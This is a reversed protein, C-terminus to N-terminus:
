MKLPDNIELQVGRSAPLMETAPVNNRLRRAPPAVLATNSGCSETIAARIDAFTIENRSDRGALFRARKVATEIASLYKESAQSYAALAEIAKDSGNPLHHRAVARLDDLKLRPPLIEHHGLRGIFQESTWGTKDEVNKRLRSFQPTSILAVPVRHNVLATMIWNIRGPLAERRNRHPWLYHAEDMVLALRSSQLASEIRCRLQVGKLSTASASGIAKAIARYFGEDDGESNVQVYRAQGAHLECWEKASFSKGTRSGGEILTMLGSQLTYDLCSWVREGIETVIGSATARDEAYLEHLSERLTPFWWPCLGSNPDTCCKALLEPLWKTSAEEINLFSSARYLDPNEAQEDFHEFQGHLNRLRGVIQAQKQPRTVEGRLPFKETGNPIEARVAKVQSATYVQGPEMGFRQMSKTGIRNPFKEVLRQALVDLGERHSALQIKWVLQRESEDKISECRKAVINALLGREDSSCCREQHFSGDNAYRTSSM